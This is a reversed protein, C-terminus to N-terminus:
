GQKEARVEEAEHKTRHERGKARAGKAEARLGRGKARTGRGKARRRRASRIRTRETTTVRHGWGADGDEPAREGDASAGQTKAGTDGATDARERCALEGTEDDGGVQGTVGISCCGGGAGGQGFGRRRTERDRGKRAGRGQDDSRKKQSGVDRTSRSRGSIRISSGPPPGHRWAGPAAGTGRDAGRGPGEAQGKARVPGREHAAERPQGGRRSRPPPLGPKDPEAERHGQHQEEDAEDLRGTPIAGTRPGGQGRRALRRGRGPSPPPRRGLGKPHRERTREDQTDDHGRGEDQIGRATWPRGSRAPACGAGRV